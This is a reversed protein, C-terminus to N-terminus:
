EGSGWRRSIHHEFGLQDLIKAVVSDVLDATTEPRGYFGPMAPLIIAGARALTLLNELHLAHLPTERPVLVLKRREKLCVDAARELLNSSYGHAIRGITGMSCPVVAMGRHLFTGSSFPAAVDDISFLRVSGRPVGLAEPDPRRSDVSRGLEARLVKAAGDSVTGYVTAGLETLASLLRIGYASGSAGSMAVIVNSTDSV